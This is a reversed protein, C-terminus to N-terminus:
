WTYGLVAPCTSTVQRVYCQDIKCVQHLPLSGRPPLELSEAHVCSPQRHQLARDPGAFMCAHNTFLRLNYATNHVATTSNRPAM